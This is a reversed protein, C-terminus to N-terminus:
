VLSERVQRELVEINRQVDSLFPNVSLAKRFWAMATLHDGNQLYILGQGSLAGFHRPELSLTKGVDELSSEFDGKLYYATARKNWGEAFNPAIETIRTFVDLAKDLKGDSMHTIGTEMLDAVKKDGFKLWRRWIERTIEAGEYHNETTKLLKFLTDLHNDNQDARTPSFFLGSGTLLIALLTNKM